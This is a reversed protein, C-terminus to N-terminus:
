DQVVEYQPVMCAMGKEEKGTEDREDTQVEGGKNMGGNKFQPMETTNGTMEERGKGKEWGM